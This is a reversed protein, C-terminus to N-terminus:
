DRYYVYGTKKDIYHNSPYMIKLDNDLTSWCCVNDPNFYVFIYCWHFEIVFEKLYKEFVLRMQDSVIDNTIEQLGNNNFYTKSYNLRETLSPNESCEFKHKTGYVYGTFGALHYLRRALGTRQKIHGNKIGNLFQRKKYEEQINSDM